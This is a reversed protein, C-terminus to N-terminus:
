VEDLKKMALGPHSILNMQERHRQERKREREREQEARQDRDNREIDDAERMACFLEYKPNSKENKLFSPTSMGESTSHVRKPISSKIPTPLVAPEARSDPSEFETESLALSQRADRERWAHRRTAAEEDDSVHLSTAPTSHPPAPMTDM